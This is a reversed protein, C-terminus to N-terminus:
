QDRGCPTGQGRTVGEACQVPDRESVVRWRQGKSANGHRLEALENPGSFQQSTGCASKARFLDDSASSADNGFGLDRERGPVQALSCFGEVRGARGELRVAVSHIRGVRSIQLDPAEQQYTSEVFSLACEGLQIGSEKRGRTPDCVLQHDRSYCHPAEV